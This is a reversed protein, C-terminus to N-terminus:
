WLYLQSDKAFCIVYHRDCICSHTKRLVFLRPDIVFWGHLDIICYAFPFIDYFLCGVCDWLVYLVDRTGSRRKEDSYYKHVIQNYSLYGVIHTTKCTVLYCSQVTWRSKTSWCDKFNTSTIPTFFNLYNFIFRENVIIM